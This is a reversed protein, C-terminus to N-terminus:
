NLPNLRLLGKGRSKRRLDNLISHFLRNCFPIPFDKLNELKLSGWVDSPAPQTLPFCKSEHNKRLSLFVKNDNDVMMLNFGTIDLRCQIFRDAAAGQIAQENHISPLSIWEAIVPTCSSWSCRYHPHRKHPSFVRKVRSYLLRITLGVGNLRM